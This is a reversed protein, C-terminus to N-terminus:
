EHAREEGGAKPYLAKIADTTCCAEGARCAPGFFADGQGAYSRSCVPCPSVIARAPQAPTGDAPFAALLEEASAALDAVLGNWRADAIEAADRNTYTKYRAANATVIGSLFTRVEQLMGRWREHEALLAQGRAPDHVPHRCQSQSPVPCLGQSCSGDCDPHHEPEVIYGDGHCEPCCAEMGVLAAEARQQAALAATLKQQLDYAANAEKDGWAHACWYAIEDCPVSDDTECGGCENSVCVGVDGTVKAAENITAKMLTRWADREREAAALRERLSANEQLVFALSGATNLWTLSVHIERGTDDFIRMARKAGAGNRDVDFTVKYESM